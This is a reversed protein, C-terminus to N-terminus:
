FGLNPTLTFHSAERAPCPPASPCFVGSPQFGIANVDRKRFVVSSGYQTFSTSSNSNYPRDVVEFVLKITFVKCHNYVM